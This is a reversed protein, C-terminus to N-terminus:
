NIKTIQIKNELYGQLMSRYHKYCLTLDFKPRYKVVGHCATYAPVLKGTKYHEVVFETCYCSM